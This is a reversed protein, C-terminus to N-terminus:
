TLDQAFQNFRDGKADGILDSLQKWRRNQAQQDKIKKQLAKYKELLESNNTLRRKHEELQQKLEVLEKEHREKKHNLEEINLPGELKERQSKEQSRLTEVEAEYTTIQKEIGAKQDILNEYRDPAILAAKAETIEEFGHVGLKPRLNTQIEDLAKRNN